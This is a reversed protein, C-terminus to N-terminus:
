QEFVISCSPYEDPVNGVNVMTKLRIFRRKRFSECGSSPLSVHQHDRRKHLEPTNRTLIGCNQR